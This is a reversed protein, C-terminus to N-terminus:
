GLKELGLRRRGRLGAGTAGDPGDRRRRLGPQAEGKGRCAGVGERGRAV